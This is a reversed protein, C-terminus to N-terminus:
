TYTGVEGKAYVWTQRGNRIVDVVTSSIVTHLEKIARGEAQQMGRHFPRKGPTGPHMVKYRFTGNMNMPSVGSYVGHAGFAIDLDRQRIMRQRSARSIGKGTGTKAIKASITHPMAGYEVLGWPGKAYLLATPNYTGKVNFGLGLPKPQQDKRKRLNSMRRDAGIANELKGEISIKLTMSARVVADRPAKQLSTGVQHLRFALDHSTRINPM